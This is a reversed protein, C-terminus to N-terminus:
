TRAKYDELARIAMGGMIPGLAWGGAGLAACIHGAGTLVHGTGVSFRRKATVSRGNQANDGGVFWNGIGYVIHAGGVCLGAVEFVPNETASLYGVSMGIDMSATGLTFASLTLNDLAEGIKDQPASFTAEAQPQAVKPASYKTFQTSQINM